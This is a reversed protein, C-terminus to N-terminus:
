ATLSKGGQPQAVTLRDSDKSVQYFIQALNPESAFNLGSTSLMQDGWDSVEKSCDLCQQVGDLKNDEGKASGSTPHPVTAKGSCQQQGPAPWHEKNRNGDLAKLGQVPQHNDNKKGRGLVQPKTKKRCMELPHGIVQCLPCYKPLNEYVVYQSRMKGNPLKVFIETTLEKAIDVVVLVTAYSIRETRPNISDTCLPEGIKSCIKALVRENWLVIPLGLLTVWVPLISHTCAGFEFLPPMNKLVLPKGYIMYPGRDLINQRDAAIDFKFVLWGLKHVHFKNPVRWTNRLKSIAEIGPFGGVVYGVLGYGMTVVFDNVEDTEVEVVDDQNEM